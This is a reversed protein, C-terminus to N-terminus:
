LNYKQLIEMVMRRGVSEILHMDESFEYESIFITRGAPYEVASKWKPLKNIFNQSSIGLNHVILNRKHIIFKAHEFEDIEFATKYAKRLKEVRDWIRATSFDLIEDEILKMRFHELDDFEFVQQVTVATQKNKIFAPTKKVYYIFLDCLLEEFISVVNTLLLYILQSKRGESNGITTLLDDRSIWTGFEYDKVGFVFKFDDFRLNKTEIFYKALENEIITAMYFNRLNDISTIYKTRIAELDERNLSPGGKDINM